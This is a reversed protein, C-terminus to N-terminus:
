QMMVLLQLCGLAADVLFCTLTQLEQSCLCLLKFVCLNTTAVNPAEGDCWRTCLCAACVGGCRWQSGYGWGDGVLNILANAM